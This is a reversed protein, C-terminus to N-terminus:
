NNVQNLIELLKWYWRIFLIENGLMSNSRVFFCFKKLNEFIFKGKL